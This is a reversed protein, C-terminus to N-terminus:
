SLVRHVLEGVSLRALQRDEYLEVLGRDDLLDPRSRLREAEGGGGPEV